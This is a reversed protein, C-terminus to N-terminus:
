GLGGLLAPLCWSECGALVPRSGVRVGCAWGVDANKKSFVQGPSPIEFALGPSVEKVWCKVPPPVILSADIPLSLFALSLLM